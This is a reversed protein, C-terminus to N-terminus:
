KIVVPAPVSTEGTALIEMKGVLAQACLAQIWLLLCVLVWALLLCNKVEFPTGMMMVM